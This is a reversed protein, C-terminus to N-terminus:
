MLFMSISWPLSNAFINTFNVSLSFFILTQNLPYPFRVVMAYKRHLKGQAKFTEILANMFEVTVIYNGEGDQPLHPGNYSSEIVVQSPDYTELPSRREEHSIAQAFARM